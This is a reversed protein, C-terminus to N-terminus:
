KKLYPTLQEIVSNLHTKMKRSFCAPNSTYCTENLCSELPERCDQNYYYNTAPEYNSKIDSIQVANKDRLTSLYGVEEELFDRLGKLEIATLQSCISDLDEGALIKLLIEGRRILSIKATDEQAM